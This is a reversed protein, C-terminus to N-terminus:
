KGSTRRSVTQEGDRNQVREKPVHQVDDVISGMIQPVSAGVIQEVVRGAPAADDRCPLLHDRGVESEAAVEEPSPLSLCCGRRCPTPAWWGFSATQASPSYIFAM